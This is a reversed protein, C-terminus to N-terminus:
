IGVSLVLPVRVQAVRINVLVITSFHEVGKVVAGKKQLVLNTRASKKELIAAREVRGPFFPYLKDFTIEKLFHTHVYTCLHMCAHLHLTALNWDYNILSRRCFSNVM